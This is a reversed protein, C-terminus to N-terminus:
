GASVLAPLIAITETKKSTNAATDDKSEEREPMGFTIIEPYKELFWKKMTPYRKGESHCQCIDLTKEYEALVTQITESPEYKGIYWKMYDYTLGKYHEQAANTKITRVALAFNPFDRRVAQLANYENTGYCLARKSYVKSKIVIQSNEVDIYIPTKM